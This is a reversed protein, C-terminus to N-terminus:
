AFSSISPQIFRTRRFNCSRYAVRRSKILPVHYDSSAHITNLQKNSFRTRQKITVVHHERYLVGLKMTVDLISTSTKQIGSSIINLGEFPASEM